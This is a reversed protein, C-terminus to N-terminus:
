SVTRVGPESVNISHPKQSNIWCQFASVLQSGTVPWQWAEYNLVGNHPPRSFDYAALPRFREVSAMFEEMVSAQSAYAAMMKKKREVEAVTADMLVETGLPTMFEQRTVVGDTTRHYLPFEWVPIDRRQALVTAIFCCTDHDPHGGEYAHTLLADPQFKAIIRDIREIAQPIWLFLDQDVFGSRDRPDALFFLDNVGALSLAQQAEHRRADSYGERSGYKEWFFRDRPAGDTCFVVASKAARQMLVGAGVTEDDPHSVIVLTRKLLAELHEEVM